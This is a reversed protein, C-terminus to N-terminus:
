VGRWTVAMVLAGAVILAAAISVLAIGAVAAIFGLAFTVEPAGIGPLRRRHEPSAANPNLENLM